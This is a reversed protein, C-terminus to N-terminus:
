SIPILRRGWRTLALLPLAVFAAAVPARPAALAADLAPLARIMAGVAPGVTAPTPATAARRAAGGALAGLALTWPVARSGGRAAAVGAATAALVVGPAATQNGNEGTEGRALLTLGAVYAGLITAAGAARRMGRGGAVAEAGSLLSLARCAGMAVPGAPGHKLAFDYAVVSAALAGGSRTAGGRAALLFGAGLLGAGLALAWPAPVAGSPIPREPRERADEERDAYDNLAMGALYTAASAAGLALARRPPLRGGAILMGALPDGVASFVAPARVLRLYPLLRDSPPTAAM